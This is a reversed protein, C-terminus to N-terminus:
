ISYNILGFFMGILFSPLNFLPNLMLAGFDYSYFYLTSYKKLARVYFIYIYIKAVFILIILIIIIDIRFKFKYELSILIVGFLFM